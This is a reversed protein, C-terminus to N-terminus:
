LSILTAKKLGPKVGFCRRFVPVLRNEDSDLPHRIWKATDIMM